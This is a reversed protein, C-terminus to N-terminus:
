RLYVLAEELEQIYTQPLETSLRATVIAKMLCEEAEKWEDKVLHIFVLRFYQLSIETYDTPKHKLRTALALIGRIFALEINGTRWYCISLLKHM